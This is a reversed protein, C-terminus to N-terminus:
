KKAAAADAKLEAKIEAILEARMEAREKAKDEADKKAAALSKNEPAKVHKLADILPVGKFLFLRSVIKGDSVVHNRTLLFQVLGAALVKVEDKLFSLPRGNHTVKLDKGSTNKVGAFQIEQGEDM